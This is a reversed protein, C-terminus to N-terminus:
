KRLVRIRTPTVEVQVGDLSRLFALFSETDDAAFVGSVTLTRLTPSDIEVPTAAYRNFEAAVRELPENQFVIQRRLWATARQADVTTYTPPWAGNEVSVRQGAVVEIPAYSSPLKGRESASSSSGLTPKAVVVRGELVTVETAGPRADVDFTTGVDTIEVTGARVVFRRTPEHAVKFEARGRTVWVLRQTRDFRVSVSTDTDLKLTSDDPLQRTLQQGHRTDLNYAIAQADPPVPASRKWFLFGLTIVGIAAVAAAASLWPQPRWGTRETLRPKSSPSRPRDPPQAIAVPDETELARKMLDEFSMEPDNCAARLDRGISTINLYEEINQPSARLWAAFKAGQTSDLGERNAVFWDAADQAILERVSGKRAFFERLRERTPSMDDASEDKGDMFKM